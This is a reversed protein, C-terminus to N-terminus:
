SLTMGIRCAFLPTTSSVDNHIGIRCLQFRDDGPKIAGRKTTLAACYHRSVAEAVVADCAGKPYCFWESPHGVETRLRAKSQVLERETDQITLDTLLAHSVTHSGFRLGDTEMERVQPWTLMETKGIDNTVLFITAPIRYRQLLPYAYRYNDAWGDDFTIACPIKTYTRGGTLWDFYQDLSVIEYVRSLYRLQKVFAEPTVYMGPHIAAAAAESQPLVRHYMLV